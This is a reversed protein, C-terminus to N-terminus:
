EDTAGNSELLMSSVRKTGERTIKYRKRAQKSKGSKQTQIVLRPTQTMMSDLARTINSVPHGLSQFIGEVSNEAVTTETIHGQEAPHLFRSFSLAEREPSLYSQSLLFLLLSAGIWLPTIWRQRVENPEKTPRAKEGKPHTWRKVM